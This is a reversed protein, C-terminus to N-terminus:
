LKENYDGKLSKVYNETIEKLTNENIPLMQGIINVLCTSVISDGACHWIQSDTLGAKVLNEYDIDTFGMLRLCELPTLKRIRLNQMSSERERALAVKSLDFTPITLSVGDELSARNCQTNFNGKKDKWTIYNKYNKLKEEM